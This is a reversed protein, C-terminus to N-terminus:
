NQNRADYGAPNNQPRKDPPAAKNGTEYSLVKETNDASAPATNTTGKTDYGGSEFGKTASVYAMVNSVPEYSVLAKPTFATWTKSYPGSNLNPNQVSTNSIETHGSKSESSYRAGVTMKLGSTLEYTAEGFGARSEVAVHQNAQNVYPSLFRALSPVGFQALVNLRTGPFADYSVTQLYARDAHLYFLGGVWTLRQAAPSTMRLEESIQNDHIVPDSIISNFPDGSTSFHVHEDVKRYGTVSTLTAFPLEWDVHTLLGGVKKDTRANSGQNATDPSYSLTPFLSPQFNGVLWQTKGASTDDLYDGGILVRLDSTPTWLLQARVSGLNEGYTKDHLAINTLFDDRRRVDVAVKGALTEAVIPGTDYGQVEMLNDSGYTVTARGSETFSPAMTRILVAGGTVNRGFLTAQPGRLGEVSQLDYLDPSDDGFGTTPVEDIFVSVGQDIGAADNGITTGRISIFSESHNVQNFTISPVKAAIDNLNILRERQIEGGDIVSVAIPTDQLKSERREAIVLIEELQAGSADPQAAGQEAYAVPVFAPAALLIGWACRLWQAPMWVQSPVM